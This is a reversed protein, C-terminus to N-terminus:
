SRDRTSPAARWRGSRRRSTMGPLAASAAMPWSDCATRDLSQAFIADDIGVAGFENVVVATGAMAPHQSAGRDADDQREQPLRARALCSRADRRRDPFTANTQPQMLVVLNKRKRTPGGGVLRRDARGAREFLADRTADVKRRFTPFDVGVLKGNRKRAQGAVLVSDINGIHSFEVVASVPNNVPILSMADTDILVIDAEKGPTLSGTKYDLGRARGQLDRVRVDRSLPLPEVMRKEELAKMHVMLRTGALLARMAGFMDAPVTTVVDTSISPRVNVALMRLAPPLGHGMQMELEPSISTTGGTDAILRFEEDGITNCHVYTM